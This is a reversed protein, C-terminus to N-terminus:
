VEWEKKSKYYLRELIKYTIPYDGQLTRLTASYLSEDNNKCIVFFVTILIERLRDEANYMLSLNAKYCAGCMFHINKADNAIINQLDYHHKNIWEEKENENIKFRSLTAQLNRIKNEVRSVESNFRRIDSCVVCYQHVM